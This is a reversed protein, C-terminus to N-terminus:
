NYNSLGRRSAPEFVRTTPPPSFLVWHRPTIFVLVRGELNNFDRIQFV